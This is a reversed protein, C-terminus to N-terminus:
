PGGLTPRSELRLPEDQCFRAALSDVSGDFGSPPVHLEWQGAATVASRNPVLNGRRENARAIAVALTALPPASGSGRRLRMRGRSREADNRAVLGQTHPLRRVAALLPEAAFAARLDEPRIRTMGLRDADAQAGEVVVRPDPRRHPLEHRIGSGPLM